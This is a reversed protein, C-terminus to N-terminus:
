RESRDVAETRRERPDRAAPREESVKVEHKPMAKERLEHRLDRMGTAELLEEHPDRNPAAAGLKLVTQKKSSM